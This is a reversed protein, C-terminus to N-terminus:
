EDDAQEPEDDPEPEPEDAPPADSSVGTQTGGSEPAALTVPRRVGGDTERWSEEVESSMGPLALQQRFQREDDPQPTVAGARVAVGYNAIQDRLDEAEHEDIDGEAEARDVDDTSEFEEGAPAAPADPLDSGDLRVGYEEELERRRKAEAARQELVEEWDLGQEACERELTTTFNQLRLSVATEEKQPDIHGRGPGIWECRCYAQKADLFDPAGPPTAVEGNDMAEELWAAMKQTAIRGGIKHRRGTFFRWAELMAARASSYNTKSYDRSFQEYTMNFGGALHRLVAEHFSSFAATPHEPTTFKLKEGPYLHPIKAGNYRISGSKHFDNRNHMYGQMGDIMKTRDNQVGLSAGILEWAVPSEIVAAYMANLIAAQLSSQELKELMKSKAIVSVIGTRGRTQGPRESDFEHIVLRRGWPTVRPVRKWERLTDYTIDVSEDELRNAIWYATPEGMDGLVVGERLRESNPEGDPNSLRAPDVQQFCTRYKAGPRNLWEVTSLSEFSTLYSRYDLQLQGNFDNRQSADCYHDPDEAYEAFKAETDRAWTTAAEVSIGLARHNPKLSLRLRPGIINDLHTQVAGSALGHNRIVDHTRARLTKLEGLLEGDASYEPPYWGRLEDAYLDAGYHATGSTPISAVPNGQADVIQPAQTAAFASM